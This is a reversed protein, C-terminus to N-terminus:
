RWGQRRDPGQGGVQVRDRREVARSLHLRCREEERARFLDGAVMTGHAPGGQRGAAHDAVAQWLAAEWPLGLGRAVLLGREAPSTDAGAELRDLWDEGQHEVLSEVLEAQEGTLGQRLAELASRGQDGAWPRHALCWAAWQFRDGPLLAWCAPAPGASGQM